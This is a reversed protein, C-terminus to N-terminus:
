SLGASEWTTCPLITSRGSRSVDRLMNGKPVDDEQQQKYFDRYFDAPRAESHHPRYGGSASPEDYGGADYRQRKLPDSLIAYADSIEIFKEEGSPNQATFCHSAERNM